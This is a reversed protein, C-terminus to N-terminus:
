LPRICHILNRHSVQPNRHLLHQTQRYRKRALPLHHGKFLFHHQESVEQLHLAHIQGQV